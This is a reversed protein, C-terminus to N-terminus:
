DNTTGSNLIFHNAENNLEVFAFKIDEIKEDKNSEEEASIIHSMLTSQISHYSDLLSELLSYKDKIMDNKITNEEGSLVHQNKTAHDSIKSQNQDTNWEKGQNQLVGTTNWEKGAFTNKKITDWDYEDANSKASIGPGRISDNYKKKKKVNPIEVSLPCEDLVKKGAYDTTTTIDRVVNMSDKSGVVSSILNGSNVCIQKILEIICSDSRREDETSHESAEMQYEHEDRFVKILATKFDEFQGRTFWKQSFFGPYHEMLSYRDPSMKVFLTTYFLVFFGCSENDVQKPVEPILFPINDCYKLDSCDMKAYKYFSSLLGRLFEEITTSDSGKLSDLLLMTPREVGGRLKYNPNCLIVLVSHKRIYQDAQADSLSETDLPNVMLPACYSMNLSMLGSHEQSCHVSLKLFKDFQQIRLIGQYKKNQANFSGIVGNYYKEDDPWWVKIRRHVLNEGYVVNKPQDPCIRAYDIEERKRVHGGLTKINSRLKKDMTTERGEPEKRKRESHKGVAKKEQPVSIDAEFGSRKLEEVIVPKIRERLACADLPDFWKRGFMKLNDNEFQPPAQHLFLEIM